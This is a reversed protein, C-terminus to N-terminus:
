VNNHNTRNPSTFPRIHKRKIQRHCKPFGSFRSLINLQNKKPFFRKFRVKNHIENKDHYVTNQTLIGKLRSITLSIPNTKCRPLITALMSCFGTDNFSITVHPARILVSLSRQIPERWQNYSDIQQLHYNCSPKKAEKSSRKTVKTLAKTNNLVYQGFSPHEQTEAKLHAIRITFLLRKNNAKRSWFKIQSIQWPEYNTVQEPIKIFSSYISAPLNKFNQTYSAHWNNFTHVISIEATNQDCYTQTVKM